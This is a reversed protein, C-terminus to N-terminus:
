SLENGNEACGQITNKATRFTAVYPTQLQESIQDWAIRMNCAIVEHPVRGASGGFAPIVMCEIENDLAAILASRMCQYVVQHDRILSPTRMTPTHLLKKGPADPIDIVICTGVTQEGYCDSRIKARVAEQLAQGFYGRIAKDYGGTLLGFSNAPSVIGDVEPHTRMFEAFDSTAIEVGDIGGFQKGLADTMKANRDLLYMYPMTIRVM